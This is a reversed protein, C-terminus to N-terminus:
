LYAGDLLVSCFTNFLQICIMVFDGSVDITTRKYGCLGNPEKSSFFRSNDIAGEM